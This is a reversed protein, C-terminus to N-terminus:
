RPEIKALCNASFHPCFFNFIANDDSTTKKTNKHDDEVLDVEKGFMGANESKEAGMKRGAM